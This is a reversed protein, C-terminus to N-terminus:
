RFVVIGSQSQGDNTEVRIFYIGAALNGRRIALTNESSFTVGRLRGSLDFLSLKRPSLVNDKFSIYAIEVAPNPWIKLREGEAFPPHMVSSSQDFLPIISHFVTNTQVFANFDFYIAAQNEFYTGQPLDPKQAIRFKVFGQSAEKNTTSDPLFIDPFAFTLMGTGDLSWTYPHSSAGPRISAPDLLPSIQDRIVVSFATDSGTNQFRILYELDTNAAIFHADTYGEPVASKDNPDYSGTVTRCERDLWPAEDAEPFQNIYGTSSNGEGCGELALTTFFGGLFGPEQEAIIRWTANNAGFVLVLSDGPNLSYPAQMLIVNDEIIIYELGTSSSATGINYLVLRVSDGTCSASAWIQAGSWNVPPLCSTDPFVHAQYCLTRDLLATDCDLIVRVFFNHCEFPEVDGLAFWLTDGSIGAPALSASDYNMYENLILQI